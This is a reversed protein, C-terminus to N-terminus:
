APEVSIPLHAFGRLCNNLQRRPQGTRFRRVRSVFSQLLSRIELQALHMGMCSHVGHGFGLQDISRRNVDFRDPQEWKREDRNASAYSLYVRTGRQVTVGGVDVDETVLRTFGPIPSELRVAELVANSIRSPDARIADWQEPNQSLLWVLSATASVTTDLSPALYDGLLAPCETIDIEGLGAAQFLKAGWGDPRLRGPLDPNMIYRVFSRMRPISKLTRWNLAGSADFAASAWSPMQARADEPVGVLQSVVTLPLHWALDGVADFSGRAVLREVLSESERQIVESLDRVAAPTLPRSVIARLAKHRPDDSALMTGKQARNAIANMAVGSASSFVTANQLAARVDQFRTIAALRHRRMWVVPAADRLEKYLPYPNELSDKSYLNIGSIVFGAKMM